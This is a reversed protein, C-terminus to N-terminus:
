SWPRTLCKWNENWYNKTSISQVVSLKRWGFVQQYGVWFKCHKMYNRINWSIEMFNDPFSCKTRLTVRELDLHSTELLQFKLMSIEQFKWPFKWPPFKWSIQDQFSWLLISAYSTIHSHVKLHLNCPKGRYPPWKKWTFRASCWFSM